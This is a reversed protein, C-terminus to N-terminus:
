WWCLGAIGLIVLIIWFFPCIVHRSVPNSNKREAKNASHPRFGVRWTIWAGILIFSVHIKLDVGLKGFTRPLRSSKNKSRTFLFIQKAHNECFSKKQSPLFGCTRWFACPDRLWQCISHNMSVSMLTYDQIWGTCTLNGAMHFCLFCLSLRWFLSCFCVM